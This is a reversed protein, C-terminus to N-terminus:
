EAIDQKQIGYKRLENIFAFENELNKYVFFICSNLYERTNSKNIGKTEKEFNELKYALIKDIYSYMKYFQINSFSDLIEIVFLTNYACLIARYFFSQMEEISTERSCVLINQAIPLKRLKKQFLYLIYEEM